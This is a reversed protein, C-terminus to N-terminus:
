SQVEEFWVVQRDGGRKFEFTFLYTRGVMGYDPVAYAIQADPKTDAVFKDTSITFRPNGNVSHERRTVETVTAMVPANKM